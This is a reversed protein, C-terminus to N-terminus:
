LHCHDTVHLLQLGATWVYADQKYFLALKKRAYFRLKSDNKAARM